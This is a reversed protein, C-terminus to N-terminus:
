SLLCVILMLERRRGDTLYALRWIIQREEASRYLKLVESSDELINELTLWAIVIVCYIVINCDSRAAELSLVGHLANEFFLHLHVAPQLM